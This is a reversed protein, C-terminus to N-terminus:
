ETFYHYNKNYYEKFLLNEKKSLGTRTSKNVPIHITESSLGIYLLQTEDFINVNEGTALLTTEENEINKILKKVVRNIGSTIEKTKINKIKRILISGYINNEEDGFTIDMGNRSFNLFSEIKKFRHFYWNCFKLQRKNRHVYPDPHINSHYYFEIETLYYKSQSAIIIYKTLFESAVKDFIEEIKDQEVKGTSLSKLLKTLTNM